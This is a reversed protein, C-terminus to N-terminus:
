AGATICRNRGGAKADYLARDAAAILERSTPLDDSLEAIGFSATIRLQRGDALKFPTSAIGARIRELCVFAGASNVHPFIICLEDGGYRGPLDEARLERRMVAAFSALAHDGAQHGFTDNVSKFNDLDCLCFALPYGHRRASSAMADLQEVILKRNYLGTLGDHTAQYYLKENLQTREIAHLITRGLLTPSLEGKPLYDAAGMQIARLDLQNSGHATLLIMPAKHGSRLYRALLDLGNEPGLLYDVLYVDHEGRSVAADADEYAGVWDLLFRREPVRDLMKRVLIYDQEDDDLLLVRLTPETTM